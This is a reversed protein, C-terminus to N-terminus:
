RCARWGQAGREAQDLHLHDAHARNYDPSLTTSFLRCAGDRVDRLFAQRRPEGNWDGKVGITRGDELRFGAVDVADATAHESWDGVDRGYLRRCNYSGFTDVRAVGNGLHRLAAPQVIDRNWLMLAAAVPCSVGLDAPRWHLPLADSQRMRVGDAYGCQGKVRDPLRTIRVGARDLLAICQRTDGTLAALKRGTFSGLPDTLDLDTWPVDQPHQRVHDRIMLGIGAIIGVVVLLTLFSSLRM